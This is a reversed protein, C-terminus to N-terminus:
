GETRLGQTQALLWGGGVGVLAAVWESWHVPPLGFAAPVVGLGIVLTLLIAALEKAGRGHRGEARSRGGWYSLPFMFGGIWLATLPRTMPGFADDYPLIFSWGWSPSFGLTRSRTTGAGSATVFFRKGAIGTAIRITDGPHPPATEPLAIAPNRLRFAAARQRIGFEVDRGDQGVLLIETHQHDYMSFIPALGETPPGVTAEVRIVVSDGLLAERVRASVSEPLRTGPIPEGNISAALVAGHFTELHGLEPAWQGYYVTRPLSPALLWATGTQVAVWLGCGAGLLRLARSPNPHAVWAWRRYLLFGLSGGLTNTILDGLSADRGIVVKMQLTEILVTTAVTVLLAPRWRLGLLALGLGLPLFLLVNLVADETGLSGCLLCWLPTALAHGIERPHPVLTLAAILGTGFLTVVLGATRRQTLDASGKPPLM